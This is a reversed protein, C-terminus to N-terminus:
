PRKTYNVLNDFFAKAHEQRMNEVSTDHLVDRQNLDKISQWRADIVRLALLINPYRLSFIPMRGRRPHVFQPTLTLFSTYPPTEVSIKNVIGEYQKAQEDTLETRASARLEGLVFNELYTRRQEGPFFDREVAWGEFSGTTPQYMAFTRSRRRLEDVIKRETKRTEIEDDVAAHIREAATNGPRRKGLMRRAAHVSEHAIREVWIGKTALTVNKASTPDGTDSPRDLWIIDGALGNDPDGYPM